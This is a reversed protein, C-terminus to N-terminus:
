KRVAKRKIPVLEYIIGEILCWEQAEKLSMPRCGALHCRAPDEYFGLVQPLRVGGVVFRRPRKTMPPKM